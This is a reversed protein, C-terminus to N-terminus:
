KHVDVGLKRALNELMTPVHFFDQVGVVGGCGACQIFIYKKVAGSIDAKEVAEFRSDGCKICTSRPM